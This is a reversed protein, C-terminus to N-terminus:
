KNLNVLLKFYKSIQERTLSAESSSQTSTDVDGKAEFLTGDVQDDEDDGEYEMDDDLEASSKLNKETNVGISSTEM